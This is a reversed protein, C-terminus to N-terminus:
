PDTISASSSVECQYVPPLLWMTCVPCHLHRRLSKEIDGTRGGGDEVDEVSRRGGGDEVDKM